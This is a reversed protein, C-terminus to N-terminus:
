LEEIFNLKANKYKDKKVEEILNQVTQFPGESVVLNIVWAPITGGADIQLYFNVDITGDEKPLFEWISKLTKIRVIGENEKLYNPEGNAIFSVKKTEKDQKIITHTIIDRKNVPWPATSLTYFYYNKENVVKIIKTSICNYMWRNHHKVDKLVSAVASLSTKINTVVKVKKVDSDEIEQTYAKIGDKNKVLKWGGDKYSRFSLQLLSLFLILPIVNKSKM